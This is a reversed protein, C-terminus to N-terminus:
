EELLPAIHKHYVGEWSFSRRARVALRYASDRQLRQAIV